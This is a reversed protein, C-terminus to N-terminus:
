TEENLARPRKTTRRNRSRVALVAGGVSLLGLTAMAVYFPWELDLGYAGVAVYAITGPVMGVVTGLAYDRLRVATLGAAYNVATFPVIPVLRAGLVALAGRGALLEDVQRLRDGILRRVGDRGLVRSLAFAIAAGLLAGSYALAAGAALGWLLGATISFVAKPMPTLTALAYAVVFAFPAFAGSSEAWTRFDDVAGVPVIFAIVIMVIIMVAFIGARWWVAGTLAGRVDGSGAKVSGTPHQVREVIAVRCCM